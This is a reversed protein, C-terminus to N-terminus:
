VNGLDSLVSLELEEFLLIEIDDLGMGVVVVADVDVTDEVTNLEELGFVEPVVSDDEVKSEENGITQLVLAALKVTM